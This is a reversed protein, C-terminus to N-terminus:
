SGLGNLRGSRSRRCQAGLASSHRCYDAMVSPRSRRKHTGFVSSGGDLSGHAPWGYRAGPPPNTELDLTQVMADDQEATGGAVFSTVLVAM